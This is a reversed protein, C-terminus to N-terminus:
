PWRGKYLMVKDYGGDAIWDITKRLGDELGVKPVWQLLSRAKSTDAVTVQIESKPPRFRQPDSVIRVNERGMLRAILALLEGVTIVEASGFNVVEGIVEESEAMRIFASVIDSVYTFNRAPTLDGLKVENEELLQLIVTPIILFKGVRPGYVNFIRCTTVPVDYSRYFSEVVNDAALKSATYPNHATLPHTESIPRADRASGYVGGSSTHVLRRVKEHRAASCVNLTGLVNTLITEGPNSHAYAVSTIAALHFVTDCGVTAERTFPADLISGSFITLHKHLEAPLDALYGIRGQMNGRVMGQVEAGMALLRECLHSGIFGGAGTVM